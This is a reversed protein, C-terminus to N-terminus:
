AAAAWAKIILDQLMVDQLIVYMRCDHNLLKQKQNQKQSQKKNKNINKQKKEKEKKKELSGLSPPIINFTKSYNWYEWVSEIDLGWPNKWGLWWQEMNWRRFCPGHVKKKSIFGSEKIEEWSATEHVVDTCSSVQNKWFKGTGWPLFSLTVM